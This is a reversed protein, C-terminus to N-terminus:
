IVVSQFSSNNSVHLIAATKEHMTTRAYDEALCRLVLVGIKTHRHKKIPHKKQHTGMFISVRLEIIEIGMRIIEVTSDSGM